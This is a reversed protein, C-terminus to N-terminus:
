TRKGSTPSAPVSTTHEAARLRERWVDPREVACGDDSDPREELLTLFRHDTLDETRHEQLERFNRRTRQRHPMRKGVSGMCNTCARLPESSHLYALLRDAFGPEDTIRLGDAWIRDLDGVVQPVFVSQPCKFFHGEFVTHCRWVHAIQCTSYIRRILEHDQTGQESYSYRFHSYHSITLTVQHTTAYARIERMQEPSPERDPYVSIEVEDVAAWFDDRM